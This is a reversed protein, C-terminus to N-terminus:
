GTWRRSDVSELVGEEALRAKLDEDVEAVLARILPLVKNAGAGDGYHTKIAWWASWFADEVLDPQSGHRYTSFDPGAIVIDSILKDIEKISRRAYEQEYIVDRIRKIDAITKESM